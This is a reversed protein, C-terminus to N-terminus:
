QLVKQLALVTREVDADRYALDVYLILAGALRERDCELVEPDPPPVGCRELVPAWSGAWHRNGGGADFFSSIRVGEARLAAAVDAADGLDDLSFIVSTAIEGEPDAHQRLRLGAVESLCARIPVKIARLRRIMDDCRDLQALGLAGEIESMRLNQPPLRVSRVRATVEPAVWTAACDHMFVCRDLLEPRRSVVMGGEGTALLKFHQFSFAGLDGFTGVSRGEFTAGCAQAADEVVAVGFEATLSRLAAIDCSSGYPHVALV